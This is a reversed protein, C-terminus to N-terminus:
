RRMRAPKVVPFFLTFETGETPHTKAVMFGGNKEMLSACVQLGHGSGEGEPKTTFKLDGIRAFTVPDIGPGGNKVTVCFYQKDTTGPIFERDIDAPNHVIFRVEGSMGTNTTIAQEANRYLNMIIQEFHFRDIDVLGRIQHTVQLNVRNRTTLPLILKRTSDVVEVTDLVQFKSDWERGAQLERLHRMNERIAVISEVLRDIVEPAENSELAAILEKVTVGAIFKCANLQHSIGSLFYALSDNRNSRIATKADGEPYVSSIKRAMWAGKEALADM